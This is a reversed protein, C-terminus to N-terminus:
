DRHESVDMLILGVAALSGVMLPCVGLFNVGSRFLLSTLAGSHIILFMAIWAKTILKM